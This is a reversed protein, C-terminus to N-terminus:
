HVFVKNIRNCLAVDACFTAMQHVEHAKKVNMFSDIQVQLKYKENLENMEVSKNNENRMIKLLDVVDGKNTLVDLGPISHHYSTKLFSALSDIGNWNPRLSDNWKPNENNSIQECLAFSQCYCKSISDGLCNESQTHLCCNDFNISESTLEKDLNLQSSTKYSPCFLSCSSSESGKILQGNPLKALTELSLNLLDYAVNEPLFEEFYNDCLFYSNHANALSLFRQMFHGLCVLKKHINELKQRKDM